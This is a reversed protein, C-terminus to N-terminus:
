MLCSLPLGVISNAGMAHLRATTLLDFPQGKLVGPLIHAFLPYL